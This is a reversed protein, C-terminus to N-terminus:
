VSKSTRLQDYQEKAKTEVGILEEIIEFAIMTEADQEEWSGARPLLPHETSSWRRCGLWTMLYPHLNKVRGEWILQHIDDELVARLRKKRRGSGVM